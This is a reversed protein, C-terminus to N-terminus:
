LCKGISIPVTLFSTGAHWVSSAMGNRCEMLLSEAHHLREMQESFFGGAQVHLMVHWEEVNGEGCFSSIQATVEIEQFIKKDYRIM